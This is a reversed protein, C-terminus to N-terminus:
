HFSEGSERVRALTRKNREAIAWRRVEAYDDPLSQGFHAERWEETFQEREVKVLWCQLTDDDPDSQGPHEERWAILCVRKDEDNRWPRTM